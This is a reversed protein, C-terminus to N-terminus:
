LSFFQALVQMLGSRRPTREQAHRVEHEPVALVEPESYRTRMKLVLPSPKRTKLFHEIDQTYQPRLAKGTEISNM